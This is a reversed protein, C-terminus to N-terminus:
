LKRRERHKERENEREIEREKERERERERHKTRERKKYRDICIKSEIVAKIDLFKEFMGKMSSLQGTDIIIIM